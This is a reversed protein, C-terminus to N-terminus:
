GPSLRAQARATAKASRDALRDGAAITQVFAMM